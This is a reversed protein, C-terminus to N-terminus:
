WELNNLIIEMKICGFLFGPMCIVVLLGWSEARVLVQGQGLGEVQGPLFHRPAFPATVDYQGRDVVRRGRFGGFVKEPVESPPPRRTQGGVVKRLPLPRRPPSVWSEGVEVLRVREDRREVLWLRARVVHLEFLVRARWGASFNKLLRAPPPRRHRHHQHVPPLVKRPPLLLPNRHSRPLAVFPKYYFM